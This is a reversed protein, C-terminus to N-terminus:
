LGRTFLTIKIKGYRYEKRKVYPLTGDPLNKEASSECVMIGNEKLIDFEIIKKIAKDLLGSDYPPDLFILDYREGRELFSLSDSRIVATNNEFGLSRLNEQVLKVAENSEDVFTVREAERSAAEIGLQGTGAFLDLVNRGEIDFQIINFISEKVMDTTPRIKGDGPEKLKRGRALGSIVRM